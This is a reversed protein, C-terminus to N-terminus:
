QFLSFGAGVTLTLAVFPHGEALSALLGIGFGIITAVVIWYLADVYRQDNEFLLEIPSGDQDPKKTSKM